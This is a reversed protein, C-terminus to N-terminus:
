LFILIEPLCCFQGKKCVYKRKKKQMGAYSLIDNYIKVFIYDVHIIRRKLHMCITLPPRAGELHLKDADKLGQFKGRDKLGRFKAASFKQACLGEGFKYLRFSRQRPRPRRALGFPSKKKPRSISSSSPSLSAGCPLTPWPPRTWGVRAVACFYFYFCTARLKEKKKSTGNRM